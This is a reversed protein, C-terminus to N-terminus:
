QNVSWRNTPNPEVPGTNPPYINEYGRLLYLPTHLVSLYPILVVRILFSGWIRPYSLSTDNHLELNVM